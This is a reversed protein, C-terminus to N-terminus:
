ESHSIVCGAQRCSAYFVVYLFDLESFSRPSLSHTFSEGPEFVVVILLRTHETHKFVSPRLNVRAVVLSQIFTHIVTM